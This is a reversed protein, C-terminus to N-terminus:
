KTWSRKESDEFIHDVMGNLVSELGLNQILALAVLQQIQPRYLQPDYGYMKIDHVFDMKEIAVRMDGM